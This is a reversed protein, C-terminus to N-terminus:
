PFFKFWQSKRFSESALWSMQFTVEGSGTADLKACSEMINSIEKTRVAEM